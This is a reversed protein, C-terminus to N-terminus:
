EGKTLENIAIKLAENIQVGSPKADDYVDGIRWLLYTTLIKKAEFASM